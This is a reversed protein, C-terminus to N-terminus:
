RPRSQCGTRLDSSFMTLTISWPCTECVDKVRWANFDGNLICVNTYRYLLCVPKQNSALNEYFELGTRFRLYSKNLTNTNKRRPPYILLTDLAAMQIGSTKETHVVNWGYLARMGWLVCVHFLYPIVLLFYLLVWSVPRTNGVSFVTVSM